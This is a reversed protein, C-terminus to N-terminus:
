DGTGAASSKAATMAPLRSRIYGLGTSFKGLLKCNYASFEAAIEPILFDKVNKNIFCKEDTETSAHQHVSAYVISDQPSLNLSQQSTLALHMVPRDNPLIVAINALRLLVSNLRESEQRGSETLITAMADADKVSEKYSASRRLQTLESALAGALARRERHRRVLTEYPEGLSFAPVAIKIAATEALHLIAECSAGEEQLLALELIFNSEIYVIM